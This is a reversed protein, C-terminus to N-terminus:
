GIQDLLRDVAVNLNTETEYTGEAIAQRIEAVRGLRIEPVDSREAALQGADSIQLEDGSTSQVQPPASRAVRANHPPNMGQPGHVQSPGYIHM